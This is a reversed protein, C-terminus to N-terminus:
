GIENFKQDIMKMRSKPTVVKTGPEYFQGVPLSFRGCYPVNLYFSLIKFVVCYKIFIFFSLLNVILYTIHTM